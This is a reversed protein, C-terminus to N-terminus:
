QSFVLIERKVNEIGELVHDHGDLEPFMEKHMRINGLTDNIGYSFRELFAEERSSWTNNIKAEILDSLSRNSNELVKYFSLLEDMAMERDSKKVVKKNFIM